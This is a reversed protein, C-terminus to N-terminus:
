DALRAAHLPEVADVVDTDAPKVRNLRSVAKRALQLAHHDNRAYHDTVGSERSHVAAGGLEEASVEEGTAMKVLPPGALFVKSQRKIVINYDSMGPQYAGGATSSGFVVCVTPIELKSLEIMEYFFRGSEAFHDTKAPRIRKKKGDGEAQSGTPARRLVKLLARVRAWGPRRQRGIRSSRAAPKKARPRARCDPRGPASMQVEPVAAAM